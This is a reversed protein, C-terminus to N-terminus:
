MYFLPSRTCLRAMHLAGLTLIMEGFVDCILKFLVLCLKHRRLRLRLEFWHEDGRGFVPFGSHLLSTEAVALIDWRSRQDRRCLNSRHSGVFYLADILLVQLMQLFVVKRMATSEGINAHRLQVQLMLFLRLFLVFLCNYTRQLSKAESCYFLIHEEALDHAHTGFAASLEFV